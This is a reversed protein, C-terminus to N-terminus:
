QETKSESVVHSSQVLTQLPVFGPEIATGAKPSNSPCASCAGSGCGKSPEDRFLKTVRRVVFAAAWVVCAVVVVIQWEFSM